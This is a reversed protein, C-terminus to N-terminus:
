SSTEEEVFFIELHSLLYLLCPITTRINTAMQMCFKGEKMQNWGRGYREAEGREGKSGSNRRGDVKKRGKRRGRGREGKREKGRGRM